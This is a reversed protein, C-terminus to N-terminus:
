GERCADHEVAVASVVDALIRTGRRIGHSLPTILSDPRRARQRRWVTSYNALLRGADGESPREIKVAARITRNPQESIASTNQATAGTRAAVRRADATRSRTGRATAHATADRERDPRTERGTSDPGRLATRPRSPFCSLRYRVRQEAGTRPRGAPATPRERM